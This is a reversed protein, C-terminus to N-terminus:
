SDRPSPSTYLLCSIISSSTTTYTDGGTTQTEIQRQTHTNINRVSIITSQLTEVEGAADFTSSADTTVSGAIQSNNNSSTLRLVKKGCEFKPTTIDNPDPIFFSGRLYGINDTKLATAGPRVTAQAGSTQGILQLNDEVYGYYTNESKDSLSLTDINLLTTTTSYEAPVTPNAQSRPPTFQTPLLQVADGTHRRPGPAISGDPAIAIAGTAREQIIEDVIRTNDGTLQGTITLPTANFYPNDTYIVGPNDYDGLKHNAQAVRFRILETGQANTGIVTEGVQFTGTTM